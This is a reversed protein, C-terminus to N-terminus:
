DRAFGAFVWGILWSGFFLVIGLGVSGLIVPAADRLVSKKAFPDHDVPELRYKQWPGAPRDAAPAPPQTPFASWDEKSKLDEYAAVAGFGLAVVFCPIALAIGIRKFGRLIREGTM